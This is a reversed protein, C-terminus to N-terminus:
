PCRGQSTDQPLLQNNINDQIMNADDQHRSDTGGDRYWHQLENVAGQWNGHTVDNWFNPASVSLSPGSNYAIDV